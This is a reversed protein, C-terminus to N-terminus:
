YDVVRKTFANSFVKSPNFKKIIEMFLGYKPYLRETDTKDMQFNLKGWHLRAGRKLAFKQIKNLLVERGYIHKLVPTDIYCVDYGQEATLLAESAKVFRLGLPSTIHVQFQDHLYVLYTILEDIFNLYKGDNDMRIVIECDYAREKVYDLGQYMVKHGKNIYSEDKQSKIATDVFRPVYDPYKNIRWIMIYVFYPFVSALVYSLSRTMRKINDGIKHKVKQMFLSKDTHMFREHTLVLAKNPKDKVQYPNIQVLVSQFGVFIKKNKLEPKVQDWTTVKRCENLYYMPEVEMVYSYIVGMLGFCVVAANFIDDNLILEPGAYHEADTVPNSAPEIRYTKVKCSNKQDHTVVVISKVMKSMGGLLHSSGHTGTSIAGAISQHDIGGM